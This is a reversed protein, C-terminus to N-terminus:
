LGVLKSLEGLSKSFSGFKEKAQTFLGGLEGAGADKIKAVLSEMEPVQAQLSDVLKSAQEKIAPVKIDGVKAAAADLTSKMEPWQTAVTGDIWATAEGKLSEFAGAAADTADAATDKVADAADGAADTAADVADGAADKAAAAANKTAETASSAADKAKECGGLTGLVGLAVGAAVIMQKVQM